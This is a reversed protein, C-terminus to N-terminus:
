EQKKKVFEDDNPEEIKIFNDKYWKQLRQMLKAKTGSKPLNVSYERLIELRHEELQKATM